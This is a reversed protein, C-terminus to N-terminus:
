NLVGKLITENEETADAMVKAITGGFAQAMLQTNMRSVVVRGDGTEYVSIRCPMLSTVLKARDEALIKAAHHPQCLEVVAVRGVDYGYPAVADHLMHVTPVKWGHEAATTEVIEITEEFTYRSDDEVIMLKPAASFATLMMAGVGLVFGGIGTVILKKTM